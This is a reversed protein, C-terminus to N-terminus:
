EMVEMIETAAKRAPGEKAKQLPYGIAILAAVIKNEPLQCAKAIKGADIIGLIVSGIGKEYAALCFTQAAIGADFMGWTEGEPTTVTGDPNFGSKGKDYTLVVLADAREITQTNFTFALLCNKAVEEQLDKNMIVHYNVSQTNKWSPVWRCLEAIALLDDKSIHKDTFKRVSRRGKICTEIEM